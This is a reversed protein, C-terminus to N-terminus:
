CADDCREIRERGLLGINRPMPAHRERNVIRVRRGFAGRFEAALHNHRWEVQGPEPQSDDGIRL